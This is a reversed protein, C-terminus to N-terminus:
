EEHQKPLDIIKNNVKRDRVQNPTALYRASIGWYYYTYFYQITVWEFWFTNGTENGNLYEKCPFLAFFTKSQTTGLPYKQAKFIM